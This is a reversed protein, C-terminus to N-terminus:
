PVATKRSLRAENWLTSGAPWRLETPEPQTLLRTLNPIPAGIWRELRPSLATSQTFLRQSDDTRGVREYVRGLLFLAEADRGHNRLFQTLLSTATETEGSIFALYALNFAVEPGNAKATDARRWAAEAGAFDGKLALSAGLNVLVDYTPPLASFVANARASDGLRYYDVGLMFRALPYEPVVASVKELLAASAKYNADVYHSQGLQYIAATYQPHLRIAEQLLEIHRQSDAALMGRVYAEFASRPIPPQAAYDSEPLQAGPVLQKALKSSLEAALSIVDDLRGSVTIDARSRGAALDLVRADIKFNEHTGSFRGSVLVDAGIDWGVKLATARSVSLNEPIGLRDYVVAREDFGFVYLQRQAGLREATLFALGEGLWDLGREGTENEFANTLVTVQQAWASPAAAAIVVAVLIATM